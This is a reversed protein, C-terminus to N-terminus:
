RVAYFLVDNPDNRMDTLMTTWAPTPIGTATRFRNDNLSRDIVPEDAPEIVIAHRGHGYVEAIRVLLAFKSIPESAVHYLGSLEPHRDLVGLLTEALAATTLGSFIARRYGTVHDRQTLFWEFLGDTSGSLSRGIVSTRVTLHPATVVEGFRKSLGYVDLADPEDDETYAGRNGSFVCDTSIQILKAGAADCRQRLYHPLFSNTIFAAAPDGGRPRQKILGIGNIVVDPRAVEFAGILSGTDEATVGEIMTPTDFVSPLGSRSGRITGWTEYRTRAALWARHGILGSAGLVLIRM